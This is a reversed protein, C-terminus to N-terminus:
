HFPELSYFQFKKIIEYTNSQKKNFLNDIKVDSDSSIKYSYYSQLSISLKFETEPTGLKLIIGRRTKYLIPIINNINIDTINYITKFPMKLLKQCKKKSYTKFIIKFILFICIRLLIM